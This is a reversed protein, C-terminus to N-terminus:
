QWYKKVGPLGACPLQFVRQDELRLATLSGSWLCGSDLAIANHEQRYGLASWHGFVVTTDISARTPVAYWPSFGAPCDEPSGKHDFEIEGETSCFRLRSMVNTILRLRNIGRLDSRWRTPTNGYMQALFDRYDDARLVAEVEAALQRAQTVNWQPLLGAHVMVWEGEAHLLPRHRLWDLLVDRDPAALIAALTDSRRPQVYGEAVALLHLDHNGLVMILRDGMERAWRLAALSETGRNVLDGVLWIRDHATDFDVSRLLQQLATFCGQIDGIAYTAM